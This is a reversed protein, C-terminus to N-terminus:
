SEGKISFPNVQVNLNSRGLLNTSSILQMKVLTIINLFFEKSQIKEIVFHFQIDMHKTNKHFVLNKALKISSQNDCKIMTADRQDEEIDHLLRRLWIAEYATEGVAQYEAEISSLSVVSQM